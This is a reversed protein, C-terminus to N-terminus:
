VMPKLYMTTNQTAAEQQADKFTIRTYATQGRKFTGTQAMLESWGPILLKEKKPYPIEEISKRRLHLGSGPLQLLNKPDINGDISNRRSMTLPLISQEGPQVTM